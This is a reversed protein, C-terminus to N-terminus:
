ASSPRKIQSKVLAPLTSSKCATDYDRVIVATSVTKSSRVLRQDEDTQMQRPELVVVDEQSDVAYSRWSKM